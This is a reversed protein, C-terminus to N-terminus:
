DIRVGAYQLARLYNEPQYYGHFLGKLIEERDELSLDIGETIYIASHQYKDLERRITRGLKMHSILPEFYGQPYLPAGEIEIRQIGKRQNVPGLTMKLEHSHPSVKYTGSVNPLVMRWELLGEPHRHDLPIRDLYEVDVM